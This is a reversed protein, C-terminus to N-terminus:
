LENDLRFLASESFSNLDQNEDNFFFNSFFTDQDEVDIRDSAETVKSNSKSNAAEHIFQKYVAKLNKLGESVIDKAFYVM